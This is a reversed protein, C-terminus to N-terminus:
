FQVDQIKLENRMWNALDMKFPPSLKVASNAGGLFKVANGFVANAKYSPQLAGADAPFLVNRFCTEMPPFFGTSVSTLIRWRIRSSVARNGKGYQPYGRCTVATIEM